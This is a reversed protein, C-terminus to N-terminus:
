LLVRAAFRAIRVERACGHWLVDRRHRFTGLGTLESLGTGEWGIPPGRMAGRLQSTLRRCYTGRRDCARNPDFGGHWARFTLSRFRVTAGKTLRQGPSSARSLVVARVCLLRM